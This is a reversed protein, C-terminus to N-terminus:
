ACDHMYLSLFRHTKTFIRLSTVYIVLQVFHASYEERSNTAARSIQCTF